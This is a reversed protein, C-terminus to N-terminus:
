VGYWVNKKYGENLVKKSISSPERSSFNYGSDTMFEELRALNWNYYYIINKLKDILDQNIYKKFAENELLKPIDFVGMDVGNIVLCRRVLALSNYIFGLMRVKCEKNLKSISIEDFDFSYEQIDKIMKDILKLTKLNINKVKKIKNDAEKVMENLDNDFYNSIIYRFSYAWEFCEESNCHKLIYKRFDAFSNPANQIKIMDGEFYNRSYYDLVKGDLFVIKYHNGNDFNYKANKLPPVNVMINHIKDRGKFGVIQYIMVCILENVPKMVDIFDNDFLINLDMDSGYRSIGRGYSGHYFAIYPISEFQPFFKILRKILDTFYNRKLNILYIFDERNYKELLLKKKKDYDREFFVFKKKEESIKKIIDDYCPCIWKNHFEQRQNM